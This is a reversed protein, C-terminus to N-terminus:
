LPAGMPMQPEIVRLEEMVRQWEESSIWELRGEGDLQAGLSVSRRVEMERLSTPRDPVDWIRATEDRSGTVVRKGDLSFAVTRAPGEHHLPPGFPHGTATEWLQPRGDGSATVLLQGDPSFAIAPAQGGQSM